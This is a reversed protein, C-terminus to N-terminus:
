YNWDQNSLASRNLETRYHPWRPMFRDMLATFRDNHRRELLHVLEHVLVYELCHPPLKALDTNLRITRAPTNCSGWKTKMRQVAIGKVKVGVTPTWKALLAPLAERIQERYWLEVIAQRKERDSGPRVSLLMRRPRLEVTPAQDREVVTLLYRAGWVQLSERDVYERPAEREQARLRRQQKRIWDLKSIAFVRITGLSMRRPASIRVRGTPPYVSLHVNKIDKLVVDVSVDGLKIESVM